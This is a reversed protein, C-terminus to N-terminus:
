RVEQLVPCLISALTEPWGHFIFSWHYYFFESAAAYPRDGALLIPDLSIIFDVCLSPIPNAKMNTNLDYNFVFGPVPRDDIYIGGMFDTTDIFVALGETLQHGHGLTYESSCGLRSDLSALSPSAFWTCSTTNPRKIIIRRTFTHRGQRDRMLTVLLISSNRWWICFVKEGTEDIFELWVSIDCNGTLVELGFKTVKKTYKPFLKNSYKHFKKKTLDAFRSAM